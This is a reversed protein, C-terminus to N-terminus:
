VAESDEPKSDTLLASGEQEKYMGRYLVQHCAILGSIIDLVYSAGAKLTEPDDTLKMSMLKSEIQQLIALEGDYKKLIHTIDEMPEGVAKGISKLQNVAKCLDDCMKEFTETHFNETRQREEKQRAAEKEEAKIKQKEKIDEEIDKMWDSIANIWSRMSPRRTFLKPVEKKLDELIDEDSWEDRRLTNVYAQLVDEVEDPDWNNYVEAGRRKIYGIRQEIPTLTKNYAIGGLKDLFMEVSKKTLVGEKNYKFYQAAGIDVSERLIDSPFKDYIKALNNRGNISVSYPAIRSDVLAIFEDLTMISIM